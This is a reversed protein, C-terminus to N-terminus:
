GEWYIVNKQKKNEKNTDFEEPYNYPHMQSKQICIQKKGEQPRINSQKKIKGM